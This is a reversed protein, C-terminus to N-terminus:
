GGTLNASGLLQRYYWHGRSENDLVDVNFEEVGDPFHGCFIITYAWLNRTLNATLNGAFVLPAFPGALLPFLVYDKLTQRGTKRGIRRLMRLRKKWGMDDAAGIKEVELEHVAVGYQFFVALLFAWLPNGLYYPHWPQDESMRLIG